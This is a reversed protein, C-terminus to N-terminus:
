YSLHIGAMISRGLQDSGFGEPSKQNTINRINVFAKLGSVITYIVNTNITFKSAIQSGSQDVIAGTQNNSENGTHITYDSFYYTSVDLSLRKFVHVILNFGGWVSPTSESQINTTSDKSGNLTYDNSPNDWAGKINYYPSYNNVLTTQFTLHPRFLIKSNFLNAQTSVTIGKQKIELPLNETEFNLSLSGTSNNFEPTQLILANFNEFKQSFIAVDFVLKEFRKFRYGVEYLTNRLLDLNKNGYLKIFTNSGVESVTNILTPILFSGNYSSGTLVRLLHDDNLKYNIAGHYSLLGKQPYNFKDYRGAVIVRIKYIPQADLKLSGAINNIRGEGNFTGSKNIDVTYEKDNVYASQYSIAPKINLLGHLLTANYDVYLDTNTYNYDRTHDKGSLGQTGSIQSALFSFNHITGTLDINQSNNTFNSLSIGTVQPFLGINQNFGTGLKFRINKSHDYYFNLHGDFRTLSLEPDPFRESSNTQFSTSKISDIPTYEERIPDYFDQNYRHRNQYDLGIQIAIKDNIAKGLSASLSNTKNGSIITAKAYTGMDALQTTIINIVGSVANPGYLPSSPGHIIEIREIDPLNVPLNQWYTGGQLSSFVPRNDVMVLITTNIYSYNSYAPYGDVGGRLSVDYTGNSIERVIAGPCLRLAEPINTAGSLEIETKSIVFSSVPADFSKEEKRSASIIKVNLLDEMSM